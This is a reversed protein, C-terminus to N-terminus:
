SGARAAPPPDGQWVDGRVLLEGPVARRVVLYVEDAPVSLLASLEDRLLRLLGEVAERPYTEKCTVYGIPAHPGASGPQWEPRHAADADLRQWLLWCHEAPISLLGTVAEALRALAPRGPSPDPSMLTIVPM